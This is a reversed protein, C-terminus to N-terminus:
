VRTWLLSPFLFEHVLDAVATQLAVQRDVNGTRCRAVAVPHAPVRGHPRQRGLRQHGLHSQRRRPDCRVVIVGGSAKANRSCTSVGRAPAGFSVALDEELRELSTAAHPAVRDEGRRSRLEPGVVHGVGVRGVQARGAVVVTRDAGDVAVGEPHRLEAVADDHRGVPQREVGGDVSLEETDRPHCQGPHFGVAVEQELGPGDAVGVFHEFAVLDGCAGRDAAAREHGVLGEGALLETKDGVVVVRVEEM